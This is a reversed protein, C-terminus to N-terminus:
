AHISTEHWPAQDVPCQSPACSAGRCAPPISMRESSSFGHLHRCDPRSARASLRWSYKLNARPSVRDTSSLGIWCPNESTSRQACAGPNVRGRNARRPLHIFVRFLCRLCRTKLYAHQPIPPPLAGAITKDVHSCMCLSMHAHYIETQIEITALKRALFLHIFFLNLYIGLQM